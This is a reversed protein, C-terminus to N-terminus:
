RGDHLIAEAGQERLNEFVAKAVSQPGNARGEARIETVRRNGDEGWVGARLWLEGEEAIALAAIPSTCDGQLLAVLAREAEVCRQTPADHLIAIQDQTRQDEKRCQLALAGQGAAPLMGGAELPTMYAKDYLGARELGSKALILADVQGQSWKDLRTDINGRIPDIKLLPCRALAQYKRRLSGTGVRAEPPLQDLTKAERSVLMDWPEARKPVSAVILRKSDVLPMTVPIDKYSHVALDIRDDLLALELERIFLGKGGEAYLPRDTIRDGSTTIVVLEVRMGPHMRELADAV